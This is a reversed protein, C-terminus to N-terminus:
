NNRYYPFASSFNFMGKRELNDMLFRDADHKFTFWRFNLVFDKSNSGSLGNFDENDSDFCVWVDEPLEFPQVFISCDPYPRPEITLKEVTIRVGDLNAELDKKLVRARERTSCGTLYNTIGNFIGGYFKDELGPRVVVVWLTKPAKDM